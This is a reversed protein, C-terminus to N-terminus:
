QAEQMAAEIQELAANAQQESDATALVLSAMAGVSNFGLAVIDFRGQQDPVVRIHQTQPQM